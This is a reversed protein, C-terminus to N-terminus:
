VAEAYWSVSRRARGTRIRRPAAYHCAPAAVGGGFVQQRGAQLNSPVVCSAVAADTPISRPPPLVGAENSEM